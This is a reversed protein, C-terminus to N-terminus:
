SNSRVARRREAGPLRALLREELKADREGRWVVVRRGLRDLAQHARLGLRTESENLLARRPRKLEHIQLSRDAGGIAGARRIPRSARGRETMGPAADHKLVGAGRYSLWPRAEVPLQSQTSKAVISRM